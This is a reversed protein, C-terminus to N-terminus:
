GASAPPHDSHPDSSGDGFLPLFKQINKDAGYLILFDGPLPFGPCPRYHCVHRARIASSGSALAHKWADLDRLTKGAAKSGAAVKLTRIRLDGFVKRSRKNGCAGPLRGPFVDPVRQRPHSTDAYRHRKGAAYVKCAGPHLDEGLDPVEEPIVEDAGLDLLHRADNVHRTRVVIYIKPAMERALHIIGPVVNQESIVVVLGRARGIGAHESSRGTRPTAM